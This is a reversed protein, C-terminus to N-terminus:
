HFSSLFSVISENENSTSNTETTTSIFNPDNMNLLSETALELNGQSHELVISITEEDINPFLQQLQLVKPNVPTVGTNNNPNVVIPEDGEEEEEGIRFGDDEESQVM